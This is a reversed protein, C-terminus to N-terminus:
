EREGNFQDDFIHAYDLTFVMAYHSGCEYCRYFHTVESDGIDTEYYECDEAGCLPCTTSSRRTPDQKISLGAFGFTNFEKADM